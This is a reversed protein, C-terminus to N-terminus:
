CSPPSLLLTFPVISVKLLSGIELTISMSPIDLGVGSGGMRLMGGINNYVVVGVAGAKLAAKVKEVFTCDGRVILVIKGTYSDGLLDSCADVPSSLVIQRRTFLNDTIKPGFGAPHAAVLNQPPMSPCSLSSPANIRMGFDRDELYLFSDLTNGTAGVAICNKATAPAGITYLGSDGDNGAAILPLFEDNKFAFLDFDRASETYFADETGWSDSRVRAGLSYPVPFYDAALNDPLGGLTEDNSIDSFVLKADPAMGNYLQQDTQTETDAGICKADGAISAATHSGHGDDDHKDGGSLVIYAKFRRHLPVNNCSTQDTCYPVNRAADYFFGLNTDVGTDGIAVVQGTGTINARWFTADSQQPNSPRSHSQVLGHAWRNRVKFQERHSVSVVAPIAAAADLFAHYCHARVTVSFSPSETFSRVHLKLPCAPQMRQALVRYILSVAGPICRVTMVLGTDRDADQSVSTPPPARLHLLPHAISPPLPLSSTAVTSSVLGLILLERAAAVNMYVICSHPPLADVLYCGSSSCSQVVRDCSVGQVGCIWQRIDDDHLQIPDAAAASEAAHTQKMLPHVGHFMEHRAASCLPVWILLFVAVSRLLPLPMMPRSAESFLQSACHVNMPAKEACVFVCVCVRMCVCV